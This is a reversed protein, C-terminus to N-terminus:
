RENEGREIMSLVMGRTLQPYLFKLCSGSNRFVVFFLEEANKNSGGRTRNSNNAAPRGAPYLACVAAAATAVM